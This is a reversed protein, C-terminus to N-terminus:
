SNRSEIKRKCIEYLMDYEDILTELTSIRDSLTEQLQITLTKIKEIQEMDVNVDPLNHLASNVYKTDVNNVVIKAAMLLTEGNVGTMM